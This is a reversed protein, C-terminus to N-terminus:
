GSGRVIVRAAEVSITPAGGIMESDRRIIQWEGKPDIQVRALAGEEFLFSVRAGIAPVQGEDRLLLIATGTLPVAKLQDAWANPDGTVPESGRRM